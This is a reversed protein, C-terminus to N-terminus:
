ENKWHGDLLYAQHDSIELESGPKINRKIGARVALRKFDSWTKARSYCKPFQEYLFYTAKGIGVVELVPM